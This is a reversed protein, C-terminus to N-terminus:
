NAIVLSWNIERVHDHGIGFPDKHCSSLGYFTNRCIFCIALPQSKLAIQQYRAM